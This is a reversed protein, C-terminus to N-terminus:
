EEKPQHMGGQILQLPPRKKPAGFTFKIDVWEPFPYGLVEMTYGYFDAMSKFTAVNASHFPVPNTIESEGAIMMMAVMGAEFGHTYAPSQDHFAYGLRFNETAM